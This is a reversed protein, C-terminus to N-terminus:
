DPVTALFPFLRALFETHKCASLLVNWGLTLVSVYTPRYRNPVLFFGLFQAIPWMTCDVLYTPLFKARVEAVTEEWTCGEMTCMAVYFSSDCFPGM